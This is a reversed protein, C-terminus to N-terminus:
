FRGALRNSPWWTRTGIRWIVSVVSTLRENETGRSDSFSAGSKAAEVPEDSRTEVSHMHSVTELRDEPRPDPLAEKDVKGNPTLPIQDLMVYAAPRLPPPLTHTLHANLELATASHARRSRIYAILEYGGDPKERARVAAEGVSPHLRLRSAIEEPEIRLGNIKVQDDLRGTFWLLGDRGLWGSDGTRYLRGGGDSTSDAVFRGATEDPRNLYGVALGSGGIAIEGLVGAPQPVMAEDVIRVITDSMAFGVASVSRNPQDTVDWATACITTETAGYVNILRSASRSRLLNRLEATLTEGGCTISKLCNTKAFDAQEIIERLMSPVAVAHTVREHVIIEVIERPDFGRPQSAVVLSAGSTVAMFIEQVSPDFGPSVYGLVRDGPLVEMLSTLADIRLRLASHSCIVGKPRGTSGSTYIVFAPDDGTPESLQLDPASTENGLRDVCILPFRGPILLSTEACVLVAVPEADELIEIVRGEPAARDIPLFAHGAQLIALQSVVLDSSRPLVVAIVSGVGKGRNPLRATLRDIRRWLSRNDTKGSPEVVAIQDPEEAAMRRALLHIPEFLSGETLGKASQLQGPSAAPVLSVPDVRVTPESVIQELIQLFLDELLGGFLGMDHFVPLWSVFVSREDLGMGKACNRFNAMGNSHTVVVGRPNSTSGSTYQLVAPSEMEPSDWERGAFEVQEGLFDPVAGLGHLAVGDAMGTLDVSPGQGGSEEFLILVPTCDSVIGLVRDRDGRCPAPVAVAGARLCGLFSVVFAASNDFLLVVRDGVGAHKSIRDAMESAAADLERYNLRIVENGDAALIILAVREPHVVARKRLLEVLTIEGSDAASRLVTMDVNSLEKSDLNVAEKKISSKISM